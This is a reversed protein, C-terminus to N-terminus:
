LHHANFGDTQRDERERCTCMFLSGAVHGRVCVEPCKSKLRDASRARAALLASRERTTCRAQTHVHMHMHTHTHTCTHAHTRAHM